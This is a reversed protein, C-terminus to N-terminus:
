VPQISPEVLSGSSGFPERRITRNLRIKKWCGKGHPQWRGSDCWATTTPWQDIPHREGVPLVRGGKGWDKM